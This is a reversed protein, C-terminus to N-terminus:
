GWTRGRTVYQGKIAVKRQEKAKQWPQRINGAQGQVVESGGHGIAM